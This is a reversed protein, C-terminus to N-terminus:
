TVLAQWTMHIGEALSVRPQWNLEKRAREINLVIEPVDFGREPEYLVTIDRATIQKILDLLQNLSVGRGSAINFISQMGLYNAAAVFADAVDTAYVYDRVISGDGWVTVPQAALAQKLFVPIVGQALGHHGPGYPNGIRLCITKLGFQYSFLHCYKEILLKSNGYSVVPQERSEETVPLSAPLGYVTGGSSAFIVREVKNAVCEELLEISAIVNSQIDFVMNKNSSAPLTTSVLHFVWQADPLVTQLHARNLFDGDYLTLQSCALSKLVAFDRSIDFAIVEHGAALLAKCLHSGLFGNAGLVLCRKM